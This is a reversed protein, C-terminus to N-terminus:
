RPVAVNEVVERVAADPSLGEIEADPRLLVRHRLVPYALTKVDDPVVFARGQLAARAKACLLLNSAARPSAGLLIAPSERTRRVIERVYALVNPEIDIEQVAAQLRIVDATGLVPRVDREVVRHADFGQHFRRLIEMEEDATPYRMVIKLLFRDVQAEPLPYTGEFEVPNQTALVLFPAPLAHREGEITVQREEMSELLASQTKPPTRNIEDALLVNTFIPGRRLRFSGESPYFVNTGVLDSPMLDPTLQIRAFQCDLTRALSKALLTKAVGPVGELLMHGRAFLGVLLLEVAEDQGVVAKHIEATIDRAAAEIQEGMAGGTEDNM